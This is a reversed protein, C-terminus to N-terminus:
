WVNQLNLQSIIYDALEDRLSKKFHKGFLAKFPDQLKLKECLIELQPKTLSKGVWFASNPDPGWYYISQRFFISDFSSRRTNAKKENQATEKEKLQYAKLLDHDNGKAIRDELNLIKATSLSEVLPNKKPEQTKARAYTEFRYCDVKFIVM